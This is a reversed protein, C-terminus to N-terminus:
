AVAVSARRMSYVECAGVAVAFNTQTSLGVVGEKRLSAEVAPKGKDLRLDQWRHM